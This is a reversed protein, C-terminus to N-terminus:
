QHALTYRIAQQLDRRTTNSYEIDFWLVTRSSDILYTVPPRPPGISKLTARDRDVLLPYTAGCDKALARVPQPEDGEDIGVVAVGYGGFRKVVEPQLDALEELSSRSRSGWFAVVTLKAGLMQGLRRQKGDLDPLEFDPLADGVRIRALESHAQSMVVSPM